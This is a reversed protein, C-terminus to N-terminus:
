GGFKATVAGDVVKGLNPLMVHTPEHDAARWRVRLLQEALNHGEPETPAVIQVRWGGLVNSMGASDIERLALTFLDTREVIYDPALVEIGRPTRTSVSKIPPPEPQGPQETVVPTPHKIEREHPAECGGLASAAACIAILLLLALLRPKLGTDM